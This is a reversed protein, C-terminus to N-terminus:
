AARVPGAVARGSPSRVMGSSGSTSVVIRASAARSAPRRKVPAPAAARRCGSGAAPAARPWPQAAPRQGAERAAGLVDLAEEVVAGDQQQVEAHRAPQQEVAGGRPGCSCRVKPKSSPVIRRKTSGRRKPMSSRHGAAASPAAGSAPGDRAQAAPRRSRRGAGACPAPRGACAGELHRQHVLPEHDADAVDVGALAQEPRPKRRGAGSAAEARALGAAPWPRDPLHQPSAISAPPEDSARSRGTSRRAPCSGARNGPRRGRRRARCPSRRSRDLPDDLTGPRGEQQRRQWRQRSASAPQVRGRGRSTNLAAASRCAAMYPRWAGTMAASGSSDSRHGVLRDQDLAAARDAEIVSFRGLASFASFACSIASSSAASVSSSARRRRDRAM